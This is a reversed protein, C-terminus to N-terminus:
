LVATLAALGGASAAVAVVDFATDPFPPPALAPRAGHNPLASTRRMSSAQEREDLRKSAADREQLIDGVVASEGPQLPWMHVRSPIAYAGMRAAM